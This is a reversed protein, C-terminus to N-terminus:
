DDDEQITDLVTELAQHLDGQSLFTAVTSGTSDHPRSPWVVARLHQSLRSSPHVCTMPLSVQQEGAASYDYDAESGPDTNRLDGDSFGSSEADSNSQYLHHHHYGRVGTLGVSATAAPGNCKCDPANCRHVNQSRRQRNSQDPPRICYPLVTNGCKFCPSTQWMGCFGSFENQCRDCRFLGWGWEKDRPVPDYRVRCRNCKSVEKRQPTRRWWFHDCPGCAFLRASTSFAGLKAEQLISFSKQLHAVKKALKESKKEVKVWLSKEDEIRKRVDEPETTFVFSSAAKSDWEFLDLLLTAEEEDFRGKFLEQFARLQKINERTQNNSGESEM